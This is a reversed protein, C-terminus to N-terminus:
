PSDLFLGFRLFLCVFSRSQVSAIAAAGSYGGRRHSAAITYASQVSHHLPLAAVRSPTPPVFAV